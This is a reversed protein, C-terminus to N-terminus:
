GSAPSDRWMLWLTPGGLPATVEEAVEFGHSRYFSVNELKSCELYAPVGDSDCRHLVPDLLASGVGQHQHAPETGITGLYYHPRRPHHGALLVSLRRMALLRGALILVLSLHALVDAVSSAAPSPPLWLAAGLWGPVTYVEGRPLYNHRLQLEFFRRLRDERGPAGPFVYAAVPDDVFARGLMAAM